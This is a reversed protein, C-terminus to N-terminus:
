TLRASYVNLIGIANQRGVHDNVGWVRVRLNAGCEVDHTIVEFGTKIAERASGLSLDSQALDLIIELRRECM